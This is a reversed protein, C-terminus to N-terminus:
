GAAIEFAPTVFFHARRHSAVFSTATFLAHCMRRPFWGSWVLCECVCVCSNFTEKNSSASKM